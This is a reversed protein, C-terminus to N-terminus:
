SSADPKPTNKINRGVFLWSLVTGAFFVFSAVTMADMLSANMYATSKSLAGETVARFLNGFSYFVGFDDFDPLLGFHMVILFHSAFLMRFHKARAPPRAIAMLHLVTHLLLAGGDILPYLGVKLWGIGILYLGICALVTLLLAAVMIWRRRRLASPTTDLDAIM